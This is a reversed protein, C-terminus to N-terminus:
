STSSVKCYFIIGWILSSQYQLLPGLRSHGIGGVDDLLKTIEVILIEINKTMELGELRALEPLLLLLLTALTKSIDCNPGELNM